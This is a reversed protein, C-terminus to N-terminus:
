IDCLKSFIKTVNENTDTFKKVKICTAIEGRLIQEERALDIGTRINQEKYIVLDSYIM